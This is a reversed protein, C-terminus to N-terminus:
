IFHSLHRKFTQKEDRFGFNQQFCFFIWGFQNNSSSFFFGEDLALLFAFMGTTPTYLAIFLFYKM